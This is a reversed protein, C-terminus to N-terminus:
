GGSRRVYRGSRGQRERGTRDVRGGVGAKRAGSQCM